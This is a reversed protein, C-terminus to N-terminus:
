TIPPVFVQSDGFILPQSNKLQHYLLFFGDLLSSLYDPDAGGRGPHNQSSVLAAPSYELGLVVSLFTIDLLFSLFARVQLFAEALIFFEM